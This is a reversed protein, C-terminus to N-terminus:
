VDHPCSVPKAGAVGSPMSGGWHSHSRFSDNRRVDFYTYSNIPTTRGTLSGLNDRRAKENGDMEIRKDEGLRIQQDARRHM